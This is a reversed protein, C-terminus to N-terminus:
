ERKWEQCCAGRWVLVIREFDGLRQNVGAKALSLNARLWKSFFRAACENMGHDWVTECLSLYMGSHWLEHWFTYLEESMAEEEFGRWSQFEMLLSRWRLGKDWNGDFESELDRDWINVQLLTVCSWEARLDWDVLEEGWVSGLCTEFIRRAEETRNGLFFDTLEYRLWRVGKQSKSGTGVDRRLRHRGARRGVMVFM